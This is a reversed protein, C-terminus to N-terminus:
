DGSIIGDMLLTAALWREPLVSVKLGSQYLKKKQKITEKVDLKSKM